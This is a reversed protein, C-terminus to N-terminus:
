DTNLRRKVKALVENADFLAAQGSELENIRRCIEIDWAKKADPEVAGDLSILLEKALEAREGDPLSLADNKISSLQAAM